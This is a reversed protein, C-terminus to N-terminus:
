ICLLKIIKKENEKNNFLERMSELRQDIENSSIYKKKTIKKVFKEFLLYKDIEMVINETVIMLYIISHIKKYVVDLNNETKIFNFIYNLPKSLISSIKNKLIHKNAIDFVCDNIVSNLFTNYVKILSNVVNIKIDDEDSLTFNSKIESNIDFITKKYIFLTSDKSSLQLLKNIDGLQGVFEVYYYLSKQCHHYTLEINKTYLFLINFVHSITEIGKKIVYKNHSENQIFVNETIQTIYENMVNIYNAFVEECSVNVSNFYNEINQLSVNYM